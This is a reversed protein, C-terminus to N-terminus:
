GRLSRARELQRPWAIFEGLKEAALLSWRPSRLSARALMVADAQGSAIIEEAQEPETILGVASTALKAERRITEAFRVQYGPGVPIKAGAVNGGSSVDILDVGLVKLRAALRVSQDLDWGGETYDTASIRVFLPVGDSVVSRVAEVVECLFRIRNEFSGGYQDSRRNSLPSLFQHVLYGHAAHLEIVDFGASVARVAADAFAQVTTGIEDVSLAHPVDYGEFALASPAVATWGGEDRSAMLHDDWPRLTSGKRGAHALQVGIKTGQSHVFDVVPRWAEVQTENWIGTCGVSIRGETSVGTAETM